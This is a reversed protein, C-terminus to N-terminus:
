KEESLLLGYCGNCITKELGINDKWNVVIKSKKVSNCRVCTFETSIENRTFTLLGQSFKTTKTTM